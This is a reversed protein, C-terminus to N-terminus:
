VGGGASGEPFLLALARTQMEEPPLSIEGFGVNEQSHFRLKKFKEAETRVLVDGLSWAATAKGTAAQLEGAQGVISSFIEERDRLSQERLQIVQRDPPSTRFHHYFSIVGHVEARSLNLAQAITNLISLERNRQKLEEAESLANM